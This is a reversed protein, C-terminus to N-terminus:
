TLYVPTFRENPGVSTADAKLGKDTAAVSVFKGTHAQLAWKGNPQPLRKFVEWEYIGEGDALIEGTPGVHASMFHGRPARFAVRQGGLQVLGLEEWQYVGPGNALVQGGGGGQPSVYEGNAARLAVIAKVQIASRVEPVADLRIFRYGNDIFKPILLRTMEYTNNVLALQEEASSDHALVIGGQSEEIRAFYDDACVQASAGNQWFQWDNGAINWLVPGTYRRAQANANLVRAVGDSWSGYPPRFLLSDQNAAPKLAAHADLIQKIIEQDNPLLDPMGPHTYTHNVVLHGWRALQKLVDLHDAARKGIVFFTAQIGQLFLYFGLDDTRPGLGVGQTLGPGDDYTLCLTKKPLGSGTIGTNLFFM